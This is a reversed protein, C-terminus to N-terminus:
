WWNNKKKAILYLLYTGLIVIIYNYHIFLKFLIYITDYQVPDLKETFRESLNIMEKHGQIHSYVHLELCGM